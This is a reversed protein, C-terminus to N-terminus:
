PCIQKFGYETSWDNCYLEAYQLKIEKRTFKKTEKHSTQKEKKILMEQKSHGEPKTKGGAEFTANFFRESLNKM